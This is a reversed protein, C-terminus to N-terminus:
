RTVIKKKKKKWDSGLVSEVKTVSFIWVGGMPPTLDSRRM